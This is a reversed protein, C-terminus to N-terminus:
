QADATAKQTFDLNCGVVDGLKVKLKNAATAAAQVKQSNTQINKELISTTSKIDISQRVSQSGGGGM